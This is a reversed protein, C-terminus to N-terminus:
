SPDRRVLTRCARRVPGIDANQPFMQYCITLEGYLGMNKAFSACVIAELGLDNVFHRIAYADHEYAGSTIGLYAADFLPFLKRQKVVQAIQAWEAMSPDCGTPNHASAHFVFISGTPAEVLADLIAQMNLNGTKVSYWEFHVVEFGITEFVQRHNSWSPETIYVLPTKPLTQYLLAGAQHLAGTGSLAQCAAVQISICMLAAAFTMSSYTVYETNKLPRHDKAM